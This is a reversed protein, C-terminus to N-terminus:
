TKVGTLGLHPTAYSGRVTGQTEDFSRGNKAARSLAKKWGDKYSDRNAGPSIWLGFVKQNPFKGWRLIRRQNGTKPVPAKWKTPHNKM